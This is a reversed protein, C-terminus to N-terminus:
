KKKSDSPYLEEMLKKPNDTVANFIFIVIRILVIILFCALVCSMVRFGYPFAGGDRPVSPILLISICITAAASILPELFSKLIKRKNNEATEYEQILVQASRIQDDYSTKVGSNNYSEIQRKAFDVIENLSPKGFLPNMIRFLDTRAERTKATLNELRFVVFIGLFGLLASLTQSLTSFFYLYNMTPINQLLRGAYDAICASIALIFSVIFGWKIILLFLLMTKLRFIRIKIQFLRVFVNRFGSYKTIIFAVLVRRKFPMKRWTNTTKKNREDTM